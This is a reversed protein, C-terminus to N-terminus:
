AAPSRGTWRSRSPSTTARTPRPMPSASPHRAGPRRRRPHHRDEHLQGPARRELGDLATHADRRGRRRHRGARDRRHDPRDRRARLDPNRQDRPLRNRSDRHCRGRLVGQVVGHDAALQDAHPRQRRDPPGHLDPDDHGRRGRDREPLRRRPVSRRRRQPHHRHRHVEGEGRTVHGLRGARRHLDRRGGRRRGRHDRGHVHAARRGRGRLRPRRRQRHLRHGGHGHRRHVLAHRDPRRPGGRGAHGRLHPRRGRRGGCRCNAPTAPPPDDDDLITGTRTYSVLLVGDWQTWRLTLTEDDEDETDGLVTVDITKVTEGPAFTLTGSTELYDVGATATADGESSVRYSATITRSSTQTRGNADTLRATFTLTTTGADGETVSPSDAGLYPDTDDNRITGTATFRAKVEHSTGSVALGVTFTEDDEVDGDEITAVTLTLQEGDAGAFALDDASAAYDSGATATGDTFSPTVTLGGPVAGDLTVVFALDDGEEAEADAIRLTAPPPDDDDLITGTRAYSVLLVGDWETWRLTLTEDDEDETDGLVTVDITQVTEGPAFTLTGSTELYDVGATATADGESSVQYSATIPRSSTMSRGNADTLRATFTLTTPGSDGETVSPSDAGLYVDAPPPDDDDLITGVATFSVLLVKDGDWTTWRMTLTEDGEHETDGHVTVEVTKSREGPAFTLTGSTPEYDTGAMATNGEESSVKFSANITEASARDLTATFTLTTTSADGEVVSPSDLGLYPRDDVRLPPPAVTPTVAGITDGAEAEAAHGPPPVVAPALTALAIGLRFLNTSVM